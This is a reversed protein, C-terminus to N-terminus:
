NAGEDTMYPIVAMPLIIGLRDDSVSCSGDSAWLASIVTGDPRAAEGRWRGSALQFTLRVVSHDKTLYTTVHDLGYLKAPEVAKATELRMLRWLLSKVRGLEKRDTEDLSIDIENAVYNLAEDIEKDM